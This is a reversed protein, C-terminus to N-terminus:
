GGRAMSEALAEDSTSMMTAATRAGSPASASRRNRRGPTTSSIRSPITMPGWTRPSASTVGTTAPNPLRPRLKRINRAPKSISSPRMAPAGSLRAVTPQNTERATASATAPTSTMEPKARESRSMPRQRVVVASPVSSGISLSAPTESVRKPENTRATPVTPSNRGMTAM